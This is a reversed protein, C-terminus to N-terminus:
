KNRALIAAVSAKAAAAVQADQDKSWEILYPLATPVGLAALSGIALLRQDRPQLPGAQLLLKAAASAESVDIGNRANKWYAQQEQHFRIRELAETAAKAVADNEDWMASLLAPVSESTTLRALTNAAVLRVGADADSRLMLDVKAAIKPDLPLPLQTLMEKRADPRSDELARLWDETRLETGFRRLITAIESPLSTRALLARAEDVFQAGVATDLQALLYGALRADEYGLLSAIATRLAPTSTLDATTVRRFSWLLSNLEDRAKRDAGELQKPLRAALLPLAAVPVLNRMARLDTWVEAQAECDLLRRWADVLHADSYGHYPQDDADTQDIGLMQIGRASWQRQPGGFNAAQLGLSYARPYLEIAAEDGLRTLAAFVENRRQPSFSTGPPASWSLLKRLGARTAAGSDFQVHMVLAPAVANAMWPERDLLRGFWMSVEPLSSMALTSLLEYPTNGPVLAGQREGRMDWGEPENRLAADTVEILARAVEDSVSERMLQGPVAQYSRLQPMARVMAAQQTPTAMDLYRMMWQMQGQDRRAYGLEVLERVADLSPATWEPQQSRFLDSLGRGAGNNDREPLPGVHRCAALLLPMEEDGLVWRSGAPMGLDRSSTAVRELFLRRAARPGDAGLRYALQYAADDTALDKPLAARIPELLRDQEADDLNPWRVALARFAASQTQPGGQRLLPVVQATAVGNMIAQLNGQVIGAPDTVQVLALVAPLMGAPVRSQNKAPNTLFRQWELPGQAAVKVLYDRAAPTDFQWLLASFALKDPDQYYTTVDDKDRVDDLKDLMAVAGAEGCRLLDATLTSRATEFGDAVEKSPAQHQQWVISQLKAVLERADALRAQAAKSQPDQGDLVAQATKGVEGGATAAQQLFQRAEDKKDLRTLLEGLHLAAEAAVADDTHGALLERYAKEAATLDGEQRELLVARDLADRLMSRQAPVTAAILLAAAWTTLKPKM